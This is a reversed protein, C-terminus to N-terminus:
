LSDIKYPLEGSKLGDKWVQLAELHDTPILQPKLYKNFVRPAILPM